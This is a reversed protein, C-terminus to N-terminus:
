IAERVKEKEGDLMLVFSGTITFVKMQKLVSEFWTLAKEEETVDLEDKRLRISYGKSRAGSPMETAIVFSM